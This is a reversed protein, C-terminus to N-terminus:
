DNKTLDIVEKLLQSEFKARKAPPCKKLCYELGQYFPSEFISFGNDRGTADNETKVEIEQSSPENQFHLM